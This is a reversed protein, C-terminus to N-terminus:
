HVGAIPQDAMRGTLGECGHHVPLDGLADQQHIGGNQGLVPAPIGRLFDGVPTFAYRDVVGGLRVLTVDVEFQEPALPENGSYGYVHFEPPIGSEFISLEITFDGSRLLRGAHPGREISDRAPASTAVPKAAAPERAADAPPPVDATCAALLLACCIFYKGVNM